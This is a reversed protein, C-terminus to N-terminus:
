NRMPVAGTRIERARETLSEAVMDAEEPSLILTFPVSSFHVTLSVKRAAGSVVTGTAIEGGEQVAASIVDRIQATTPKFQRHRVTEAETAAEFACTILEPLQGIPMEFGIEGGATPYLGIQVAHGNKTVRWFLGPGVEIFGESM